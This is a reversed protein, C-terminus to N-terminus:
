VVGLGLVMAWVMGWSRTAGGDLWTEDWVGDIGDRFFALSAKPDVLALNMALVGRWGGEVTKWRDESFYKDWEKRVWARPRQFSSAPSIPLMHIGHVM